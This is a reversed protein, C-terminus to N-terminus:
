DFLDEEPIDALEPQHKDKESIVPENVKWDINLLSDNWFLGREGYPNYYDSCKYYVLTEDSLVSFGHAFGKPIFLQHRNNESIIRTIARGFTSSSKRLDVAVDLIEGQMVMILKDQPNDIQYHLGRIAGKKSSSINDQVFDVKLGRERFLSKRYSELFIGRKDKFIDPKLLLVDEIETKEFEM